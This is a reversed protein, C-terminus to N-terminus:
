AHAIRVSEIHKWKGDTLWVIGNSVREVTGLRIAGYFFYTVHDGPKIM